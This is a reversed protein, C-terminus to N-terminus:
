KWAPWGGATASSSWTSRAAPTRRTSTCSRSRRCRRPSRRSRAGRVLEPSASGLLVFRGPRRDDDILPRLVTFLEPRVQVEDLVVTLAALSELYDEARDLRSRDRPRELDLVRVDDRDGFLLERMLTSKGCQRPGVIGVAPFRTLAIRVAEAAHRPILQPLVM